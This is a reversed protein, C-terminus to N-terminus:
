TASECPRSGLLALYRLWQLTGVEKCNSRCQGTGKTPTEVGFAQELGSLVVNRNGMSPLM